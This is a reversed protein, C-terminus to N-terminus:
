NHVHEELWHILLEFVHNKEPEHFIEHYLNDLVHLQKDTSAAHEVLAISGEKLALQDDAGHMVLLPFTFREYSRQIREIAGLMEHGLRIRIGASNYLADNRADEVVRPDRSLKELDLKILPVKPLANSLIGSLAVLLPTAVDPDLVIAPGSLVVGAWYDPRRAAALLAIAGGMSHGVLFVPLARKPDRRAVVDDIFALTDDVFHSFLQVYGREGDSRGHGEHDVGHVEFNASNLVEAVELYRGLHEHLGHVLFVLGRPEGFRKVGPVLWEYRKLRLGRANIFSDKCALIQQRRSSEASPVHQIEDTYPAIWKYAAAVATATLAGGIAVKWLTKSSSASLSVRESAERILQEDSKSNPTRKRISSSSSAM